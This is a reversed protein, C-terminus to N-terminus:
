MFKCNQSKKESTQPNKISPKANKYEIKQYLKKNKNKFTKDSHKTKRKLVPSIPDWSLVWNNVM